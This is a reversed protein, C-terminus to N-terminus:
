LVVDLQLIYVGCVTGATPDNEVLVGRIPRIPARVEDGDRHHCLHSPCWVM